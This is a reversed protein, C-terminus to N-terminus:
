LENSLETLMKGLLNTGWDDINELADEEDYGIGWIRDFPSAEVLQYGKYKLLYKLLEPNQKFKEALGFKVLDYCKDIWVDGNFNKVKRGLKKQYKPNEELLIEAATEHDNFLSAKQYMMFQEGCNYTIVGIKFNSPYWNSFIGGWFFKYKTEM